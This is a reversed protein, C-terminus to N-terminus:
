DGAAPEDRAEVVFTQGAAEIVDGAKVRRKRRREVQDNVKVLGEQILGKAHGGTEALGSLKLADSLTLSEEFEDEKGQEDRM